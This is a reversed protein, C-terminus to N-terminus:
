LVVTEQHEGFVARLTDSIEGLSAYVKVADLIFPMLNDSGQAAIKLAALKQEVAGNDRKAKLAALSKKQAIEVEPKVKLLDKPPVGKVTFRNVGVIVQDSTEVAKQYAYASDQIEKQQFGRSIAEAAGGLDDIRRIYDSAQEEIQDTLSEVMYSGALPDISDAAGSEYAIVQQTRLAIRVSEETPLALAEDRSNTHLSQTGGLVAALAQITVRMINNDPQQATLTCGATQTHFRLMWSRPNKAGFREKMIKAWLRRAARFKAVEELLNNHANFFFALRPAFDDVDLGAKVAAEVYAIGDALTFAVEQVASSGAERIHYGSISITNWKPVQDKCFAFIDTIIRMSERPPYIYTGRAMYEKLIDNQITGMVQQSTYGQKEAVAIYMALLVAATANITMSTSVKDLPIQDFLIEMDALSDIAVGVKGVEGDAMASDSDYGMQTPLDFAVSLGTQGQELLYRYRENSEKATGFGAYQRMTWFRGRYMTPQVGRTFPYEGPFGLKEAYASDEGEPVYLREVEIDSTTNFTPKREPNKAVVKAITQEQWRKKEDQISM